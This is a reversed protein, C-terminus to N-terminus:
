VATHSVTGPTRIGREGCYRFLGRWCRPQNNQHLNLSLKSESSASSLYDFVRYPKNLYQQSRGRPDGFTIGREGCLSFLGRALPNATKSIKNM